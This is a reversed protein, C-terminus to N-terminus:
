QHTRHHDDITCRIVISYTHCHRTYKKKKKKLCFVAYSIRVHSQLESTHEESRLLNVSIHFFFLELATGFQTEGTDLWWLDIPWHDHIFKLVVRRHLMWEHNKISHVVCQNSWLLIINNHTNHDSEHLHLRDSILPYFCLYHFLHELWPISISYHQPLPVLPYFLCKEGRSCVSRILLRFEVTTTGDGTNESSWEPEM